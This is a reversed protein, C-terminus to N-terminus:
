PGLAPQRPRRAAVILLIGGLLMIGAHEVLVLPWYTRDDNWFVADGDRFELAEPDPEATWAWRWECEVSQAILDAYPPWHIRDWYGDRDRYGKIIPVWTMTLLLGVTIGAWAGVRLASQGDQRMSDGVGIMFPHSAVRNM